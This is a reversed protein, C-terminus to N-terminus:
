SFSKDQGCLIAGSELTPQCSDTRGACWGASCAAAYFGPTFRLPVGPYSEVSVMARTLPRCLMRNQILLIM